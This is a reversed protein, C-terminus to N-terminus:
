VICCANPNEDSFLQPAPIREIVYSPQYNYYYMLKHMSQEEVNNTQVDEGGQEAAVDEGGGSGDKKEEQQPQDKSEEPKPAEGDATVPKEKGEEKKEDELKSKEDPKQKEESPKEPEPQPVIKAQKKTHRYVYDVLRGADMTGTVTVKSSSLETEATRVGKMKLIRKKLQDACAQCHMNVILEATSLGAVQSAVVEPVLEGEAPPSPSLVKARRKTRQTIMNCVAQGEVVGKITVENKAMEIKVEEVGKIKLISRQIKKACGECHLDVFLVVPSAPKPEEKKEETKEEKKEEPSTQGKKDEEGM